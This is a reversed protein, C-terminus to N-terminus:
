TKENPIETGDWYKSSYIKGLSNVYGQSRCMFGELWKTLEIVYIEHNYKGSGSPIEEAKDNSILFQLNKNGKETFITISVDSLPKFISEEVQLLSFCGEDLQEDLLEQWKFPFPVHSTYNKGNISLSINNM